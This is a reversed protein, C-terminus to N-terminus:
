KNVCELKEKQSTILNICWYDTKGSVMTDTSGNPTGFDILVIKQNLLVRKSLKFLIYLSNKM